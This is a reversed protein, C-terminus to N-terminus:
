GFLSLSLALRPAMACGQLSPELHGIAVTGSWLSPWLADLEPLSAQLQLTKPMPLSCTRFHRVGGNIGCPDASVTRPWSIKM